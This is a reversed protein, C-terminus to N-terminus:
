VPNAPRTASVFEHRPADALGAAHIAAGVGVVGAVEVKASEAAFVVVGFGVVAGSEFAVVVLPPPV